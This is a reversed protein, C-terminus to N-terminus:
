SVSRARYREFRWPGSPEEIRVGSVPAGFVRRRADSSVFAPGIASPALAGEFRSLLLEDVGASAGLREVYLAASASPGAEVSITEAEIRARVRAIAGGLGTQSPGAAAISPLETALDVRRARDSARQRVARDALQARGDASTWVFAPRGEVLAPHDLPIDGSQSMVVLRPPEFRGLTDARWARFAAEDADDDAYRHVLAPEARLIAGTTVIVDARARALGLVLRDLPSRPAAPGLAIVRESEAHIAAVHLVGVAARWDVRGYLAEIRDRLGGLTSM